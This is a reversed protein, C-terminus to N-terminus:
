RRSYKIVAATGFVLADAPITESVQGSEVFHQNEYQKAWFLNHTVNYFGRYVTKQTTFKVACTEAPCRAKTLVPNWEAVQFQEFGYGFTAHPQGYENGGTIEGCIFFMKEITRYVSLIWNGLSENVPRVWVIDADKPMRGQFTGEYILCTEIVTLNLAQAAQRIIIRKARNSEKVRKGIRRAFAQAQTIQGTMRCIRCPLLAGVSSHEDAYHVFGRVLREGKGECAECVLKENWNITNYNYIKDSM